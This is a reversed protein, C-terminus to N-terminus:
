VTLSQARTLVKPRYVNKAFLYAGAQWPLTFAEGLDGKIITGAGAYYAEIAQEITFNYTDMQLRLYKAGTRIATEPHRQNEWIEGVDQAAAKTVQMLGTASSTLAKANPNLSSEQIAISKLIKANIGYLGGYKMFLADFRNKSANPNEYEFPGFLTEPRFPGFIPGDTGDESAQTRVPIMLGLLIFPLLWIM